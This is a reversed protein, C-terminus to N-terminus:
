SASKPWCASCIRDFLKSAGSTSQGGGDPVGGHMRLSAKLIADCMEKPYVAAHAARLGTASRGRLQLHDHDGGCRRLLEPAAFSSLVETRKKIFQGELTAGFACQDLVHMGPRLAGLEYLASNQWIESHAPNEVMWHRGLVTQLACAVVLFKLTSSQSARTQQRQLPPCGRSHGSWPTCTPSAFLTTTGVALLGFLASKQDALRGLHWGWRHDIPPLHDIKLEQAHASLTASGAMWEWIATVEGPRVGRKEMVDPDALDTPTVPKDSSQYYQDNM